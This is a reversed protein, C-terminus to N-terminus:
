SLDCYRRERGQVWALHRHDNAFQVHVNGSFLGVLSRDLGRLLPQRADSRPTLPVVSATAHPYDIDCGRFPGWGDKVVVYRASAIVSAPATGPARTVFMAAACVAGLFLLRRRGCASRM